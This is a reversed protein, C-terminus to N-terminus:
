RFELYRMVSVSAFGGDTSDLDEGPLVQPFNYSYSLMFSWNKIAVSLPFNIAYNMIGWVVKKPTITEKPYFLPLGNRYRYIIELPRDTIPEYTVITKAPLNESGFILNVSPFFSLRDIGWLNKKTLNLGAVPSLRHVTQKGFLLSYDFRFTFKGADLYNSVQINNTYPTNPTYTTYTATARDFYAIPSTDTYSYFYHSYEGLVSWRKTIAGLYGLSGIALYVSPDYEQSWYASVDAYVGSKHYYTLAPSLGFKNISLNRSTTNVNSNYGVRLALQSRVPAIKLLSDILSLISLSDSSNLLSDFEAFVPDEEIWLSDNEQCKGGLSATLTLTIILWSKKL